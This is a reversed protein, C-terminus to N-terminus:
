FSGETMTTDFPVRKVRRISLLIQTAERLEPPLRMCPWSLRHWHPRTRLSPRRWPGSRRIEDEAAVVPIIRAVAPGAEASACEVEVARMYREREPPQTVRARAGM